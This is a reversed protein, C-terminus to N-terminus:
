GVLLIHLNIIVNLVNLLENKNYMFYVSIINQFLRLAPPTEYRRIWANRSVTNLIVSDTNEIFAGKKIHSWSNNM